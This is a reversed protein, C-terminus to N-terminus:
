HVGLKKLAALLGAEDWGVCRFVIKGDADILYNTPFLEVRYASPVNVGGAAERGLAISFTWGSTEVYRAITDRDDDSNIAIVELGKDKMRDHLAQIRPFEQRCPACRHFWFNLLVAKKNGRLPGGVEADPGRLRPRPIGAGAPRRARPGPRDRRGAGRGRRSAGLRDPRRRAPRPPEPQPPQRPAHASSRSPRPTGAQESSPSPWSSGPGRKRRAAPCPSCAVPRRRPAPFRGLALELRAVLRYATAPDKLRPAERDLSEALAKMPGAQPSTEAVRDWGHAYDDLAFLKWERDFRAPSDALAGGARRLLEAVTEPDSEWDPGGAYVTGELTLNLARPETRSGHHECRVIPVRDGYFRRLWLTVNRESGWGTGPIDPPPPLGPPVALGGSAAGGLRYAYAWRDERGAAGPAAGASPCRLAGADPLYAPM